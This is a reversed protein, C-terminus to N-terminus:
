HAGTKQKLYNIFEGARQLAAPNSEMAIYRNAYQLAMEQKGSQDLALAANWYRAPVDPEREVARLFLEVAKEYNKRIMYVQAMTNLAQPMSPDVTLAVQAAAAADDFRGKQMFAISLNNLLSPDNPAFRLGTQWASIAEDFRSERFYVVGIERYLDRPPVSGDDRLDLVTQFQRLAEDYYKAAEAANGALSGATSLAQGYNEHARRKNPSSETVSKWLTVHSRYISNREYAAATLVGIILLFLAFAILSFPYRKEAPLNMAVSKQATMNKDMGKQKIGKKKKM